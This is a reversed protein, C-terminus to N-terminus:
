SYFKLEPDSCYKQPNGYISINQYHGCCNTYGTSTTTTSLKEFASIYCPKSFHTSTLERISSYTAAGGAVLGIIFIVVCAILTLKPCYKLVEKITPSKGNDKGNESIMKQRSSLMIYFLVPLLVSTTTITTGGILDLLPGFNPVSEAVFVVLIMISTRVIIRKIGFKQPVNFLEEIEQNLPNFVITLTLICHITICINIAQQIWTTQISQIISDRLSDGYTLFGMIGAPLYLCFIGAFAFISARTFHSPQKMDHQITPLSSHGGYSFLFTGLGVFYNTILFDPMQKEKVCHKYDSVSGWVILVVAVSTTVMACVVAWWFDQPSKLFTIPLLFVAVALILICFSVHFDFFAALLSSLNKAVLLIYVVAIGFQTIDICISIATKMIPGCARYAMESYPKRCHSEYEPWNRLLIQWCRGLCISTYCTVIALLAICVLGFYFGTQIMATPLAVLGGGAMDGIIFLGTIFWHLGKFRVFEGDVWEGDSKHKVENNSSDSYKIDDFSVTRINKNNIALSNRHESNNMSM